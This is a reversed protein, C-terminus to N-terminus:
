SLPLVLLVVLLVLVLPSSSYQQVPAPATDDVIMMEGEGFLLKRPGRTTPRRSSSFSSLLADLVVLHLVLVVM